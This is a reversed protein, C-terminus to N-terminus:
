LQGGLFSTLIKPLDSAPIKVRLKAGDARVWEFISNDNKAEIKKEPLEINIFSSSQNKAAARVKESLKGGELSLERSVRGLPYVGCLRVAQDWLKAPISIGRHKKDKRWSKFSQKVNNLDSEVAKM